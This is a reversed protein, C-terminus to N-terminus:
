AELDVTALVGAIADQLGRAAGRQDSAIPYMNISFALQRGDARDVLGALASTDSLTGTKARVRGAAPSDVMRKAITGSEGAVALASVLAAGVVPERAADALVRAMARTTVRDELALGSGDLLRVGPSDAHLQETIAAAGAATTGAGTLARGIHRTLLEATTSNSRRLMFQVIEALPASEHTALTVPTVPSVAPRGPKDGRVRVSARTLLEGTVRGVHEDPAPMAAPDIRAGDIDDAVALAGLARADRLRTDPIWAPAWRTRDLYTDDTRVRGTVEHLGYETTAEDVLARLDASALSPDGGGVIRLDGRIVGDAGPVTDAVLRTTFRHESGLVRLAAIATLLKTNSAPPVLRDADVALLEVGTRADRVAISTSAGLPHPALLDAVGRALASVPPTAIRPATPSVAVM